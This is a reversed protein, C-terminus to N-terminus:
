AVPASDAAPRRRKGGSVTILPRYGGEAEEGVEGADASEEESEESAAAAGFDLSDQKAYDVKLSALDEGIISWYTEVQAGAGPAATRIIFRLSTQPPEGEELDGGSRVLQFDTAESADLSLEHKKLERSNPTIIISSLSLRGSLKCSKVAAPIEDPWDMQRAVTDSYDATLHLRVFQGGEDRRIDSYRLRAGRFTMKPM